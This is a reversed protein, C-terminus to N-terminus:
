ELEGKAPDPGQNTEFPATTNAAQELQSWHGRDLWGSSGDWFFIFWFVGWIPLICYVFLLFRPVRTGKFEEIEGDSYHIVEREENSMKSCGM